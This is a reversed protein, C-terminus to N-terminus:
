KKQQVYNTLIRLAEEIYFDGQVNERFTNFIEEGFSDITNVQSESQTPALTYGALATDGETAQDHLLARMGLFGASSLPILMEQDHIYQNISAKKKLINRFYDNTKVRLSSSDKLMNVPLPSLPTYYTKKQVIDVTLSHRQSKEHINLADYLSPLVIDPEIGTGQHSRGTVSYFRFSTIKLADGDTGV